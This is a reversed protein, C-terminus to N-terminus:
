PVDDRAEACSCRTSRRRGRDVLRHLPLGLDAVVDRIRTSSTPTPATSADVEVRATTSRSQGDLGATAAAGAVLRTPRPREVDVTVTGPATRAAGRDAGAVVLRGGDIMVVHDCVQQVDDLLHTAM